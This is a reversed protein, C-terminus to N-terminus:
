LSIKHAMELTEMDIGKTMKLAEQIDYDVIEGKVEALVRDGIGQTLLDVAYWGFKSALVRDEVTPNGGRQIHGLVTARSEIGTAEEINKAIDFVNTGNESVVIIFHNKGLAQATKIRELIFDFNYPVENVVIATAGCAIGVNLALHGARRGMVEVVSCRAHSQATDRIKDICDMATNLATSFGICNDTCTIDNDITAPIGICPIGRKSLDSAGRFTGDGGIAVIGDLGLKKCSNVAKMIGEETKFELCRASYLMTGGRNVINSVSTFDMKVVDGEILGQYGRMIAYVEFGKDLGARVVARIAANMGPADGGSSLVGIKKMEKM